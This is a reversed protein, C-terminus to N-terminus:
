DLRRIAPHFLALTSAVATLGGGLLLVTSAGLVETGLGALGMGVPLFVYAGLSDISAVRGVFEQLSNIWALNSIELAMGNVLAAIALGVLGIPMGFVALMLGGVIAGGYIHKGRQRIQTKQGMWLSGLVYGVPFLAYLLGLLQVGGNLEDKVLFPIAVNYPGALSVNIIAFIIISIFLWPSAIVARVGEKIESIINRKASARNSPPAVPQEMRLVPLILVASVLYTFANLAFAQSIGGVAIIAAGLPPGAIRGLQLSLSTLTNASPLDSEPVLAPVSATYAPDFFIEVFGLILSLLYVHWIVLRDSFALVSVVFVIGFRLIDSVLM